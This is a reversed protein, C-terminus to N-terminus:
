VIYRKINEERHPKEITIVCKGYSEINKIYDTLLEIVMGTTTTFSGRGGSKSEYIWCDREITVDIKTDVSEHIKYFKARCKLLYTVFTIGGIGPIWGHPWTKFDWNVIRVPEQLMVNITGPYLEDRTYTKLFDIQFPLTKSACGQGNTIIGEIELKRILSKM